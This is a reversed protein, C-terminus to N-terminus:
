MQGAKNQFLYDALPTQHLMFMWVRFVHWTHLTSDNAPVYLVKSKKGELQECPWLENCAEEPSPSCAATDQVKNEECIEDNAEILTKHGIKM